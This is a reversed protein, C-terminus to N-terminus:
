ERNYPNEFSILSTIVEFIILAKMILAKRLRQKETDEFGTM